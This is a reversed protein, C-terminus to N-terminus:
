YEPIGKEKSLLVILTCEVFKQNQLILSLKKYQDKQLLIVSKKIKKQARTIM